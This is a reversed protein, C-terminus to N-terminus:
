VRRESVIRGTAALEDAIFRHGFEPDDVYLDYCANILHAEEWDRNSVPQAAWRSFAQESFGLVRCTVAVPVGSVALGGVPPNSGM